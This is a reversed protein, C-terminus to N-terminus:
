MDVARQSHDAGPGKRKRWIRWANAQTHMRMELNRGGGREINRTGHAGASAVLAAAVATAIAATIEV